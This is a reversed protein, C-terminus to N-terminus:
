LLPSLLGDSPPFCLDLCLLILRHAKPSHRVYPHGVPALVTGEYGIHTFVLLLEFDVGVDADRVTANRHGPTPLVCNVQPLMARRAATEGEVLRIHQLRLRRAYADLIHVDARRDLGLRVRNLLSGIFREDIPRLLLLEAEHGEM